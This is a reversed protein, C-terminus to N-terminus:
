STPDEPRIIGRAAVAARARILDLGAARFVKEIPGEEENLLGLLFEATGVKPHGLRRAEAVANQFVARYRPTVPWPSGLQLPVPPVIPKEKELRALLAEVSVGLDALVELITGKSVNLIAWLLHWSDVENTGLAHAQRFARAAADRVRTSFVAFSSREKLLDMAAKATAENQAVKALQQAFGLPVTPGYTKGYRRVVACISYDIMRGSREVAQRLKSSTITHAHPHLQLLMGLGAPDGDFACGIAHFMATQGGLGNSVEAPLNVDAGQGLLSMMCGIEGLEAACHLLTGGRLEINGYPLELFRGKSLSPDSKLLTTLGEVDGRHIALVPPTVEPPVYAGHQLLIELCRHKRANQGRVYNGLVHSLVCQRGYKTDVPAASVDAGASILYELADPQLCEAAGFIIPGYEGGYQGNPDAGQELLLDAMERRAPWSSDNGYWLVHALTRDLSLPTFEGAALQRKVQAYDRARAAKPMAELLRDLDSQQQHSRQMAEVMQVLEVWNKCGYERALQHQAESLQLAPNQKVRRKAQKQLHELSPRVPLKKRQPSSESM